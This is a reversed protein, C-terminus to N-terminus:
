NQDIHIETNIELTVTADNEGGTVEQYSEGTTNDTTINGLTWEEDLSISDGDTGEIRLINNSNTMDMVDELSINTINQEGDGLNLIEINAM